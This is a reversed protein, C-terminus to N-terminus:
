QFDEAVDDHPPAKGTGSLVVPNRLRPGTLDDALEFLPQAHLEDLPRLAGQEGGAFPLHEEVAAPFQNGPIVRELVLDSREVLLDGAPNAHRRDVGDAEVVHASRHLLEGGEMGPGIDAEFVEVGISHQFRDLTALGIQPEDAVRPARLGELRLRPALLGEHEDAGGGVRESGPIRDTELIEVVQGKDAEIGIEDDAVLEVPHERGM